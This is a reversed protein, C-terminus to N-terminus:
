SKGPLRSPWPRPKASVLVRLLDARLIVNGGDQDIYDIERRGGPVVAMVRGFRGTPTEVMDGPKALPESLDAAM